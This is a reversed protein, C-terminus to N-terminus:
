SHVYGDPEIGVTMGCYVIIAVDPEGFMPQFRHRFHWYSPSGDPNGQYLRYVARQQPKNLQM